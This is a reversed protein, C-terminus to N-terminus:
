TTIWLKTKVKKGKNTSSLLQSTKLKSKFLSIRDCFINMQTTIVFPM